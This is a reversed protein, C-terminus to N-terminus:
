ISTNNKLTIRPPDNYKINLGSFFAQSRRDRANEPANKNANHTKSNIGDNYLSSKSFVPSYM